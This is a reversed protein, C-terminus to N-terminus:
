LSLFIRCSSMAAVVVVDLVDAEGVPRSLISHAPRLHRDQLQDPLAEGALPRQRAQAERGAQVDGALRGVQGRASPPPASM